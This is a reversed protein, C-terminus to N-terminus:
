STQYGNLFTFICDPMDSSYGGELLFFSPIKLRGIAEGIKRYATFDLSFQALFDGQYTDFGASIGLISPKFDTIAACAKELVRLYQSSGTGPPLPFNVALGTTELGTGPYLPSQHISIFLVSDNARFIDETGNGHHVDIDLIAARAEPHKDLYRAVAIAMNNFYCFGMARNRTAHHGPPRMLSFAAEGEAASETAMVASGAALRAHEFIGPLAPTDMDIFQGTQIRMLHDKSHVRLIDQTDCPVPPTFAFGKKKLFDHVAEVRRPSEPHGLQGYALCNSTYFIKM